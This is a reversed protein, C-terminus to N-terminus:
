RVDSFGEVTPTVDGHTEYELMYDLLQQIVHPNYKTKRAM